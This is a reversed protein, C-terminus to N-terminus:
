RVFYFKKSIIREPTKITVIHMGSSLAEPLQYWLEGKDAKFSALERGHVDTILVTHKGTYPISVMFSNITNKFIIQKNQVAIQNTIITPEEYTIILKPRNSQSGESSTLEVGHDPTMSDFKLIFGNNPSSNEVVDKIVTTVAYDEWAPVTTNSNQDVPTSSFSPANSWKITSESWTGELKFLSKPGNSGEYYKKAAYLSLTAEIITVDAPIVALDFKIVM